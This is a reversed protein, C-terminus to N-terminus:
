IENDLLFYDEPTYTGFGARVLPTGFRSVVQVGIWDLRCVRTMNWERSSAGSRESSATSSPEQLSSEVTTAGVLGGAAELIRRRAHRGVVAFSLVASRSLSVM